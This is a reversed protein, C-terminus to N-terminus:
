EEVEQVEEEYEGEEEASCLFIFRARRLHILYSKRQM